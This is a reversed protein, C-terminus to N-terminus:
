AYSAIALPWKCWSPYGSWPCNQWCWNHSRQGGRCTVEPLDEHHNNVRHISWILCTLNSSGTLSALESVSFRVFHCSFHFLLRGRTLFTHLPASGTHAPPQSALASLTTRDPLDLRTWDRERSFFSSIAKTQQRRPVVDPSGFFSGAATPCACLADLRNTRGDMKVATTSSTRGKLNVWLEEIKPSQTEFHQSFLRCNIWKIVQGWVISQCCLM